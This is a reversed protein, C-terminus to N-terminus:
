RYSNNVIPFTIGPCSRTVGYNLTSNYVNSNFVKRIQRDCFNSIDPDTFLSKLRVDGFDIVHFDSISVTYLNQYEILRDKVFNSCCEEPWRTNFFNNTISSIYLNTGLYLTPCGPDNNTTYFSTLFEGIYEDFIIDYANDLFTDNTAILIGGAKDSSLGPHGFTRKGLFVAIDANSITTNIITLKGQIANPACSNVDGWVEIGQWRCGGIRSNVIKLEAYNDVVIIGCRKMQINCNSITLRLGPPVKIPVGIIINTNDKFYNTDAATLVYYFQHFMDETQARNEFPSNAVLNSCASIDFQIYVSDITSCNGGPPFAIMKYWGQQAPVINFISNPNNQQMVSGNPLILQYLYGPLKIKCDLSLLDGSAICRTLILIIHDYNNQVQVNVTDTYSCFPATTSIIRIVYSANETITQLLTRSNGIITNNGTKRWEYTYNGNNGLNNKDGDLLVQKSCPSTIDSQAFNSIPNANSVSVFISDILSCGSSPYIKCKYWGSGPNHFIAQNNYSYNQQSGSPTTWSYIMQGPITSGLILDNGCTSSQIIQLMSTGQPGPIIEITDTGICLPSNQSPLTVGNVYLQRNVILKTYVSTTYNFSLSSGILNGNLDYISYQPNYFNYTPMQKDVLNITSSIGCTITIQKNQVFNFNPIVEVNDFYFGSQSSGCLPNTSFPFIWLKGSSMGMKGPNFKISTGYSNWNTNNTKTIKMIEMGDNPNMTLIAPNTLLRVADYDITVGPPLLHKIKLGILYCGESFSFSDSAVSEFYGVSNFAWVFGSTPLSVNNPDLDPTANYEWHDVFGLSFANGMVMGNLYWHTNPTIEPNKILNAPSQAILCLSNLQLFLYLIFFSKSTKNSNM